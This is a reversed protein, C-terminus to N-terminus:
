LVDATEEIATVDEAVAKPLIVRVRTGEGPATDIIVKGKMQDAFSKVVALGLGTGARGKANGGQQFPRAIRELDNESMGAGTDRVSLAVTMNGARADVSVIGGKSSYKIANSLLNQWIQRVARADAVAWVPQSAKQRIMVGSRDAFASLQAIVSECSAVLDVPELDLQTHGAEAKAYDLIDEVVLLLDQGSEHILQVYEKYADPLTGRLENRMLDSFGLIANLPTKLEHGMGAFFATREKLAEEALRARREADEAIIDSAPRDEDTEPPASLFVRSGDAQPDCTLEVLTEGSKIRAATQEGALCAAVTKRADAAFAEGFPKGTAPRLGGPATGSVSRVTGDAAVDVIMVADDSDEDATDAAPAAPVDGRAADARALTRQLVAFAMFAAVGLAGLALIGTLQEIGARGPLEGFLGASAIGAALGVLAFLCAELTRTRWGTLMASLPAILVLAIAPSGIGGSAAVLLACLVIWPLTALAAKRGAPWRRGLTMVVLTLLAPVAAIGALWLGTDTSVEGQAAVAAVVGCVALWLLAAISNANKTLFKVVRHPNRTM